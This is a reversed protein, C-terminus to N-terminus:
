EGLRRWPLDGPRREGLAAMQAQRWSTEDIPFSGIPTGDLRLPVLLPMGAPLADLGCCLDGRFRGADDIERYVQLPSPVEEIRFREADLRPDPCATWWAVPSGPLVLTGPAMAAASSRAFAEGEGAVWDPDLRPMWAPSTAASADVLRALRLGAYVSAQLAREADEAIELIAEPMPEGRWISDLEGAARRLSVAALDRAAPRDPPPVRGLEGLALRLAMCDVLPPVSRRWREGEAGEPLALTSQALEVAGGLLGAWAATEALGGAADSPPTRNM